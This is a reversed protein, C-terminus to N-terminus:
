IIFFAEKWDYFAYYHNAQKIIEDVKKKDL